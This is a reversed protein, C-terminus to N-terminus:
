VPGAFAKYAAWFVIIIAAIAIIYVVNEAALGVIGYSQMVKSWVVGLVLLSVGLGIAAPVSNEKGKEGKFLIEKIFVIFFLVVLAGAAIPMFETMFAVLPNYTAAFFAIVAAILASASKSKLVKSYSTMAFGIAFIFLFTSAFGTLEPSLFSELLPMSIM